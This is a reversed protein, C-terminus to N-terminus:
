QNQHQLYQLDAGIQHLYNAVFVDAGMCFQKVHYVVIRGMKLEVQLVQHDQGNKAINQLM